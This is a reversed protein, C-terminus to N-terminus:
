KNVLDIWNKPSSYVGRLIKSKLDRLKSKSTDIKKIENEM